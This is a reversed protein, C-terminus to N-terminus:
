ESQENRQKSREDIRAITVSIAVINESMLKMTEKVEKMDEQLPDTKGIIQEKTEEKNYYLGTLDERLKDVRKREYWLWPALVLGVLWKAIAALTVAEGVPMVDNRGIQSTARHVVTARTNTQPQM